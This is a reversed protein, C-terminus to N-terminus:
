RISNSISKGKIGNGPFQIEKEFRYKNKHQIKVKIKERKTTTDSLTLMENKDDLLLICPTDVEVTLEKYSIEGKEYFVLGYIQINKHYVAQIYKSNLLTIVEPNASYNEIFEANSGPIIHYEYANNETKKSHNLWLPFVM